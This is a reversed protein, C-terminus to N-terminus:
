INMPDLIKLNVEFKENEIQGLDLSESLTKRVGEFIRPKGSVKKMNEIEDKL